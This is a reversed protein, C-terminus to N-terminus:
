KIETWAGGELEYVGLLTIQARDYCYFYKSLKGSLEVDIVYRNSCPKSRYVGTEQIWRLDAIDKEFKRITYSLGKIKMKEPLDYKVFHETIDLQINADRDASLLNVSKRENSASEHKTRLQQDAGATPAAQEAMIAPAAAEPAAPRKERDAEDRTPTPAERKAPAPASAAQQEQPVPAAPKEYSYKMDLSKYGPKHADQKVGPAADRVAKDEEGMHRGSPAEKKALMGVPEEAYKQAPNISTYIYYATVALFLVAVAQVPFKMLFPAFIRQWIGKKNEAETRVKAMIKQTMWAPSEAEEIAHIHEITKRLERLADTCESCTKLHQEIVAKEGATIAGDIFESLKHRIAEHNM